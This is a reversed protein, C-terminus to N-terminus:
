RARDPGPARQSIIMAILGSVGALVLLGTRGYSRDIPLTVLSLAFSGLAAIISLMAQRWPNGIPSLARWTAAGAIVLGLLTGILLVLAPASDLSPKAAAPAGTQLTRVTWTVMAQCGVGVAVGFPLARFVVSIPDPPGPNTMGFLYNGPAGLRLHAVSEGDLRPM